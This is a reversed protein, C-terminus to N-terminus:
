FNEFLINNNLISNKLLILTYKNVIYYCYLKQTCKTKKNRRM